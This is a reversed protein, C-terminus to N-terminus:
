RNERLTFLIIFFVDSSLEELDTKDCRTYLYPLM